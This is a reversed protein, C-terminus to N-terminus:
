KYFKNFVGEFEISEDHIMPMTKYKDFTPEHFLEWKDIDGPIIPLIEGNPGLPYYTGDDWIVRNRNQFPWKRFKGMTKALSKEKTKNKLYDSDPNFEYIYQKSPWKYTKYTGRHKLHHNTMSWIQFQPANFFAIMNRFGTPDELFGFWRREIWQWKTAFAVWWTFDFPNKIEFPAKSVYEEAFDLFRSRMIPNDRYVFNVDEYDLTKHWHDNLEEIHNEIVFTGYMPDGCEGTINLATGDWISKNTFMTEKSNWEIPFNKIKEYFTPNEEVCAKGMWITLVDEPKKTKILATLTTSSDIGGSWWVRLPKGLDWLEQAREDCIDSFDRNWNKPIQPIPTYDVNLTNHEGTRDYPNYNDVLITLSYIFNGFLEGLHLSRYDLLNDLDLPNYNELELRSAKTKVLTNYNIIKM